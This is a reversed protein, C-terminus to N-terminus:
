QFLMMIQQWAKIIARQIAGGVSDEKARAIQEPTLTKVDLEERLQKFTKM